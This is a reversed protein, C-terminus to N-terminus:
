ECTAPSWEQNEIHEAFSIVRNDNVMFDYVGIRSQSHAWIVASGNECEVHFLMDDPFRITFSRFVSHIYGVDESETILETRPQSEIWSIIESMVEAKSANVIIGQEGTARYPNPAIRSCNQSDEPCQTPYEEFGLTPAAVWVLFVMGIYLTTIGLAFVQLRRPSGYWKGEESM